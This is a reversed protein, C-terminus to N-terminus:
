SGLLRRDDWESWEPTGRPPEPMPRKKGAKQPRVYDWVGQLAMGVADCAHNPCKPDPEERSRRGDPTKAWVFGPVETEFSTPHLDDELEVDPGLWASGSLFTVQAGQAEFEEELAAQPDLFWRVREIRAKPAGPRANYGEAIARLGKSRFLDNIFDRIAPQEHSFILRDIGRGWEEECMRNADYVRLAWANIGLRRRYLEYLRLTHGGETVGFVELAGPDNQGWDFGAVVHKITARSWASRDQYHVSKSWEPWVAGAEGAWRHYLLRERRAGRLKELKGIYEEGIETRTGDANYLLPNDEHKACLRRLEGRLALQNIWNGPDVPNVDLVIISKRGTTTPERSTRTLIYEYEDQRVETAEFIVVIDWGAGMHRSIKDLGGPQIIAGSARFVYRTRKEGGVVKVAGSRLHTDLIHDELPKICVADICDARVKRLFLIRADPTTEAVWAAWACITHTKSCNAGGEVVVSQATDHTFLETAEGRLEM